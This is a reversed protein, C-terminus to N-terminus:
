LLRLNRLLAIQPTSLEFPPRDGANKAMYWASNYCGTVCVLTLVYASPQGGQETIRPLEVFGWRAADSFIAGLLAAAVVALLFIVWLLSPVTYAEVAVGLAFFFLVGLFFGFAPPLISGYKFL